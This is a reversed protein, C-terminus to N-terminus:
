GKSVRRGLMLVSADMLVNREDAWMATTPALELVALNPWLLINGGEGREEGEEEVEEEESFFFSLGMNVSVDCDEGPVEVVVDGGDRDVGGRGADGDRGEM